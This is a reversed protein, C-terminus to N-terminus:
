GGSHGARCQGCADKNDSEREMKHTPRAAKGCRACWISTELECIYCKGM